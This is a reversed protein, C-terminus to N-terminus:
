PRFAVKTLGRSGSEMAARVVQEPELHIAHVQDARSKSIDWNQCFLCGMNCGVTGLSFISSGPLFHFLPKKEIPDVQVAAPRGYGLNYLTGGINKRIFCFGTQGAGIHCHRPCLFCHLRGDPMVAWWKAAEM